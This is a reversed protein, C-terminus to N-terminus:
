YYWKLPLQVAEGSTQQESYNPQAMDILQPPPRPVFENPQPTPQPNDLLGGGMQPSPRPTFGQSSYDVTPSTAGWINDLPFEQYPAYQQGSYNPQIPSPPSVLPQYRGFSQGWEQPAFNLLSNHPGGSM